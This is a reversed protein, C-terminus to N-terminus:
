PSDYFTQLDTKTLGACGSLAGLHAQATTVDAALDNGALRLYQPSSQTAIFDSRFVQGDIAVKIAMVFDLPAVYVTVHITRASLPQGWPHADTPPLYEPPATTGFTLTQGRRTVSPYVAGPSPHQGSTYFTFDGDLALDFSYFYPAMQAELLLVAGGRGLLLDGTAADVTAPGQMVGVRISVPLEKKWDIALIKPCVPLAVDAAGEVPGDTIMDAAGGDHAGDVKMVNGDSADSTGADLVGDGVASTDGVSADPGAGPSVEVPADSGGNATAPSDFGADEPGGGGPQASGGGCGALICAGLFGLQWSPRRSIRAPKSV